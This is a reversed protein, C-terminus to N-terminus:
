PSHEQAASIVPRPEAKEQESVTPMVLAAIKNDGKNQGVGILWDWAYSTATGLLVVFVVALEYLPSSYSDTLRQSMYIIYVYALSPLVFRRLMTLLNLRRGNSRWAIYAQHLVHIIGMMSIGLLANKVSDASTGPFLLFLSYVLVLM